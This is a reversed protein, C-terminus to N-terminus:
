FKSDWGILHLHNNEIWAFSISSGTMDHWNNTFSEWECQTFETTMMHIVDELLHATYLDSGAINNEKTMLDYIRDEVCSPYFKVNGISM